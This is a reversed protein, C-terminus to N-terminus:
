RRFRSKGLFRMVLGAAAGVLLLGAVSKPIFDWKYLFLKVFLTEESREFNNIYDTEKNEIDSVGPAQKSLHPVTCYTREHDTYYVDV